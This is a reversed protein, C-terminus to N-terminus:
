LWVEVMRMTFLIVHASILALGFTLLFVKVRIRLRGYQDSITFHTSLYSPLVVFIGQLVIILIGHTVAVGTVPYDLDLIFVTFLFAMVFVGFIQWDDIGLGLIRRDEIKSLMTMGGVWFKIFGAFFSIFVFLSGVEMVYGPIQTPFWYDWILSIMAEQPFGFQSMIKFVIPWGGFFVVTVVPILTSELALDSLESAEDESTM